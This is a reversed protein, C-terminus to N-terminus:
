NKNQISFGPGKHWTEKSRKRLQEEQQSSFLHYNMHKVKRNNITSKYFDSREAM